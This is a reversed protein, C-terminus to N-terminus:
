FSILKMNAVIKVGRIKRNLHDRLVNFQNWSSGTDPIPNTKLWNGCAFQFFNECPKATLDMSKIMDGAATVCDKTECISGVAKLEDNKEEYFNIWFLCTFKWSKKQM